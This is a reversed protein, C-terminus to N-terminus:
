WPSYGGPGGRPTEQPPTLGWSACFAHFEPWASRVSVLDWPQLPHVGRVLSEVMPLSQPSPDLQYLAFAELVRLTRLQSAVLLAEADSRGGRIMGVCDSWRREMSAVLVEITLLLGRRSPATAERALSLWEMTEAPRGLGWWTQAFAVALLERYPLKASNLWRSDRVAELLALAGPYEGMRIM